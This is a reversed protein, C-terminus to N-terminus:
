NSFTTVITLPSSLRVIANHFTVGKLTQVRVIVPVTKNQSWSRFFHVGITYQGSPAANNPWFINEIPKNSQPGSGNMDIDLMGGSRGLRYRWFITENSSRNSYNVHLDIDDVTNWILSIQIDGTKAGYMKLRGDIDGTNQGDGNSLVERPIGDGITTGDAILQRLPNNTNTSNPTQQSRKAIAGTNTKVKIKPTTPIPISSPKKIDQEYQETDTNRGIKEMLDKTNITEQTQSSTYEELIPLDINDVIDPATDIYAVQDLMSAGDDSQDITDDFAVSMSPPDMSLADETNHSTITLVIPKHISPPIEVILAMVLLLITHFILSHWCGNDYGIIVINEILRFIRSKQEM